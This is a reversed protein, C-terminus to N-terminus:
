KLSRSELGGICIGIPVSVLWNEFSVGIMGWIIAAIVGFTGIRQVIRRKENVDINSPSDISRIICWVIWVYLILGLFGLDGWFAGLTSQGSGSISLSVQSYDQVGAYRLFFPSMLSASVSSMTTAPGSGFVFSHYSNFNLKTVEEYARYNTNEALGALNVDRLQEMTEPGLFFYAGVLLIISFLAYFYIWSRAIPRVGAAFRRPANIRMISFLMLASIMVATLTKSDTIVLLSVFYLFVIWLFANKRFKPEWLYGLCVGSGSIGALGLKWNSQEGVTGTYYDAYMGQPLIFGAEMAQWFLFPIQIVPIIVVTWICTKLEKENLPYLLFILLVLIIKGEGYVFAASNNFELGNVFMSVASLLVLIMLCVLFRWPKKGKRARRRWHFLASGFGVFLLGREAVKFFAYDRTDIFVSAYLILAAIFPYRVILLLASIGILSLLVILLINEM